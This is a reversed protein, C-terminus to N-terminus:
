KITDIFKHEKFALESERLGYKDYWAQKYVKIRNPVYRVEVAVFKLDQSLLEPDRNVIDKLGDMAEQETSYSVPIGSHKGQKTFAQQTGIPTWFYNFPLKAPTMNAVKDKVSSAPETIPVSWKTCIIWRTPLPKRNSHKHEGM